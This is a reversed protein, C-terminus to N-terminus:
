RKQVLYNYWTLANTLKKYNYLILSVFSEKENFFKCYRQLCRCLRNLMVSEWLVHYRKEFEATEHYFCEGYEFSVSAMNELFLSLHFYLFHIKVSINCRLKSDVDNKNKRFTLWKKFPILVILKKYWIQLASRARSQKKWLSFLLIKYLRNAIRMILRSETPATSAFCLYCILRPSGPMKYIVILKVKQHNQIDFLSVERNVLRLDTNPGHSDSDTPTPPTPTVLALSISGLVIIFSIIFQNPM